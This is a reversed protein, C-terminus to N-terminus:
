AWPIFTKLFPVNLAYELVSVAMDRYKTIDGFPSGGNPTGFLILRSVLKSGGEREIMWRSVLGGMSHALLELKKRDPGQQLTEDIGAAQLAEKLKRATERIPTNLNEYDFTLILDYGEPNTESKRAPEVAKAIDITNGIIGHLLVLISGARAVKEKDIETYVIEGKSSDLHAERFIFLENDGKKLAVKAFFLKVARNLTRTKVKEEPIRTISLETEGGERRSGSGLLLIDEGDFTLALLEEDEGLDTQISVKLPNEETVSEAYEIGSLEIMDPGGANRTGSLSVLQLGLDPALEPIVAGSVSRMRTQGSQLSIQAQLAPHGAFRIRGGAISTSSESVKSEQKILRLELTKAFWDNTIPKNDELENTGMGKTGRERNEFREFHGIDIGNQLLMYGEIRETAVLVKLIDLGELQEASVGANGEFIDKGTGPPLEFEPEKTIQTSIGYADDLYLCYFFLNQPSNNVVRLCCRQQWNNEQYVDVTVQGSRPAGAKVGKSPSEFYVVEVDEPNLKPLPNNLNRVREWSQVRSLITKMYGAAEPDRLAGQILTSSPAHYLYYGDERIHLHFPTEGPTEAREPLFAPSPALIEALFNPDSVEEKIYVALQTSPLSTYEAFYEQGSSLNGSPQILSRNPLIHTVDAQAVPSEQGEAFLDLTVARGPNSSVGHLAGEEIQWSKDKANFTVLVRKRAETSKEGLLFTTYPNFYGLPDFQPTQQDAMRRVRARTRQFLDAYTPASPSNKLVDLLSTTFLGTDHLTENALEGRDCASLTIHQALPLTIDGTKELMQAYYGDLYSELPRVYGGRATQRRAGLRFEAVERTISGSHCADILIAIHPHHQAVEAILAALEKDALDYGGAIRSDACVLTENILEPSVASFSAHALEQSGHGSYQFLVTDGERAQALHRRFGEIIGTRTAQADLLTEIQVDFVGRYANRLFDETGLIDNVCGRLDDIGEPYQNIGALLAFLRPASM